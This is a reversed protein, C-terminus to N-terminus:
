ARHWSLRSQMISISFTFTYSLFTIYTHFNLLGISSEPEIEVFILFAFSGREDSNERNKGRANPWKRHLEALM